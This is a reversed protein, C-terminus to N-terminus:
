EETLKMKKNTPLSDIIQMMYDVSETLLEADTSWTEYTRLHVAISKEKILHKGFWGLTVTKGHVTGLHDEIFHFAETLDADVYSGAEPDKSFQIIYPM